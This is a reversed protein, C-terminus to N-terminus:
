VKVAWVPLAVPVPMAAVALRATLRTAVSVVLAVTAV